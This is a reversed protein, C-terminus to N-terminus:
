SIITVLYNLHLIYQQKNIHEQANKVRMLAYLSIEANGPIQMM